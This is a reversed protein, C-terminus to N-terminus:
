EIIPYIAMFGKLQERSLHVLETLQDAKVYGRRVEARFLSTQGFYGRVGLSRMGGECNTITVQGESILFLGLTAEGDYEITDGQGCTIVDCYTSLKALVKEETASFLPFHRLQGGVMVCM